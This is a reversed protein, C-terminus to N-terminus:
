FRWLYSLKVFVQRAVSTDPSASRRLTPFPGPQVLLNEHRDTYGVYLATGPHLLYTLLVDATWSRERELDALSDDGDLGAYDAIVRLSLLRNFQYHLKLRLQRETFVPSGNAATSLSSHIFTPEFRLRTTPRLRLSMEAETARGRFPNVDDAPDHNVAAGWGYSASVGLWKLWDSNVSAVTAYPLFSLGEFREYAQVREIRLESNGKLEVHFSAAIERDLLRGDPDWNFVLSFEPGYQLVASDEPRWSYELEHEIQRYGVRRVFGLPAAFDPSIAQYTGEYELNRGERTVQALVASGSSRTGEPERNESRVIQGVFAWNEGTRWRGDASFTRNFGRAFERDTVLVGLNSEEGFERQVRLVGVGADSDALLEDSSLGAPARDNMALAGVAWRGLKGTLRLGVGPDVIRRSFLLNLPTQFYGANEIFFPRKEPFFVEFRENVTVQPDDSEVQSYDPNVTADITLADRVVAKADLGIRREGEKRFAPTDADLFRAQAGVAYPNIQINRGPSIQSLGNLTGCQPVFGQVRKTIHPWYAEESERQIVRGIAVNWTKTRDNMFRLSRFPIAMQVIYGDGTLKGESSWVTDFSADEDQGETLVADRQIGLPNAAFVYAHVRDRFTDLYIAVQDDEAIEERRSVRARVQAPDDKCVFVVYLKADDYSLYAVTSQTIPVGDGPERQRFESIRLAVNPPPEGNLYDELKPPQEVRPISLAVGPEQAWLPPVHCFTLVGLLALAPGTAAPDSTPM